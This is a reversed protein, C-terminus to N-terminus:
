GFSADASRGRPGDVWPLPLLALLSFFVLGRHVIVIDQVLNGAVDFWSVSGRLTPCVRSHTRVRAKEAQSLPATRQALLFAV